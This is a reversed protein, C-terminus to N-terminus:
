GRFWHIMKRSSLHQPFGLYLYFLLMKLEQVLFRSFFFWYFPWTMERKKFFTPPVNAKLRLFSLLRIFVISLSHMMELCLHLLQTIHKWVRRLSVLVSFIPGDPAPWERGATFVLVTARQSKDGVWMRINTLWLITKGNSKAKKAWSMAMKKQFWLGTITTDPGHKISNAAGVLTKILAASRLAHQSM